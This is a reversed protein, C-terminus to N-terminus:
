CFIIKLQHLPCLRINKQMKLMKEEERQFKDSIVLSLNQLSNLHHILAFIHFAKQFKISLSESPSKM